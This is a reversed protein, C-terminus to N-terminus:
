TAYQVEATQSKHEHTSAGAIPVYSTRRGFGDYGRPAPCLLRRGVTRYPLTM